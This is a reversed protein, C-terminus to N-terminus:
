REVKNGHCPQLCLLGGLLPFYYFVNAIPQVSLVGAGRSHDEDLVQGAYASWEVFCDYHVVNRLIERQLWVVTDENFTPKFIGRVCGEM